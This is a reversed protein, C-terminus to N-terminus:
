WIKCIFEGGVKLKRAEADTLIGKPTSYIGIGYGNLVKKINKAKEYVRLSPKSVRELHTLPSKGNEVYKLFVRIINQKNDRIIKFNDIYKHDKLIKIIAVKMNSSKIDVYEKKARVGNRIITLMDAIPDSISM